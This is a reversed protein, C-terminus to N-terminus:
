SEYRGNDMSGAKKHKKIALWILTGITFVLAVSGVIISIIIPITFIGTHNVPIKKIVTETETVNKNIPDPKIIIPDPKIVTISQASNKDTDQQLQTEDTVEGIVDNDDLQYKERVINWDAMPIDKGGIIQKIRYYIPKPQGVSGDDNTFLLGFNAEQNYSSDNKEIEDSLEYIAAGIIYDKEYYDGMAIILEDWNSIDNENWESTKGFMNTECIIIPKGFKKYIIDGVWYADSNNQLHFMNSYWDSGIIDWEVGSNYFYELMGYHTWSMNIVTKIDSSAQRIGSIAAKVQVTLNKIDEENYHSIKTGDPAISDPNAAALLPLDMENDIQIYDVKGNGHNGDYRSAFSFFWQSITDTNYNDDFTRDPIYVVLMVKMKYENCLQVLKDLESVSGFGADVRILRSGMQAAYHLQKELNLSSYTPTGGPTHMVVGWTFDDRYTLEPDSGSAFIGFQLSFIIVTIVLIYIKKLVTM